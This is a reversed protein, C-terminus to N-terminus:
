RAVCDKARVTVVRNLYSSNQMREDRQVNAGWSSATQYVQPAMLFDLRATLLRDRSYAKLNALGARGGTWERSRSQQHLKL